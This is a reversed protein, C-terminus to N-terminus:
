SSLTLMQNCSEASHARHAIDVHSASRKHAEHTLEGSVFYSSQPIMATACFESRAPASSQDLVISRRRDLPLSWMWNLFLGLKMEGPFHSRFLLYGHIM